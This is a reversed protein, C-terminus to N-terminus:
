IELYHAAKLIHIALHKPINFPPPDRVSGYSSRYMMYQCVVELVNTPIEQLLVRREASEKVDSNLINRLLNSCLVSSAPVLFEHDEASVLTVYSDHQSM